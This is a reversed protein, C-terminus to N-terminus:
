RSISSGRKIRESQPGRSGGSEKQIPSPPPAFTKRDLLQFVEKAIPLGALILDQKAVIRAKAKQSPGIIAKTTIDGNGLDEALAEQILNKIKM